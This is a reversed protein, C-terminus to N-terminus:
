YIRTVVRWLSHLSLSIMEKAEADTPPFIYGTMAM